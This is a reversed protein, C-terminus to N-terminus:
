KGKNTNKPIKKTIQNTQERMTDIMTDPIFLKFFEYPDSNYDLDMDGLNPGSHATFLETEVDHLRDSWEFGSGISDDPGLDLDLESNLDEDTNDDLDSNGEGDCEADSEEGIEIDIDDVPSGEDEDDDIVPRGVLQSLLDFAM